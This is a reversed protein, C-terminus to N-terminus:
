TLARKLMIHGTRQHKKFSPRLYPQAATDSTGLEVFSAYYRSYNGPGQPQVMYGGDEFRSVRIKIESRLTGTRVPTLAQATRKVMQALRKEVRDTKRDIDRLVKDDNWVVKM